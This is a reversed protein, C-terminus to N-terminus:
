TQMFGYVIYYGHITYRGVNVMIMLCEHFEHLYVYWEGHIRSSGGTEKEGPLMKERPVPMEFQDKDHIIESGRRKKTKSTAAPRHDSCFVDCFVCFFHLSNRAAIQKKELFCKNRTPPKLGMQFINTLNPIKGLYPHFDFFIQFWWSGQSGLRM